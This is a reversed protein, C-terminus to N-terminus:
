QNRRIISGSGSKAVIEGNDMIIQGNVITKMPKGQVEWNEYPSYKAKSYFHSANIRFTKKLDVTVFDASMDQELRGKNNLGFIKAPREALLQILLDLTLRDKKIMSLMLPLTTELGPVGAKVDWISTALKEDLTHPAHDSGLTDVTGNTLGEWLAEVNDNKRLPPMIALLSGRREFDVNSLLLHNPTVEATITRGASKAETIRDLASKTSVHCFHVQTNTGNSTKLIREVARVEAEESHARLFDIPDGHKAVKLEQEKVSVIAEDEAHIAVPVNVEGVHTLAERLLADNNIELGGIQHVMFLKFGSVGEDVIDKVDELNDPFESYFGVNVLIKRRAIQMRNRLSEVSMTVPENNPMDLITTFGGAAAAATGTFFDEKYAKEEDRLHVHTDILGPLLLLNKLNIHEDANPMQTERGIKLIRGDEVAISCDVIRKRIYAKANTLILDVIM